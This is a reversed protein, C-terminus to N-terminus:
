GHTGKQTEDVLAGLRARLRSDRIAFERIPWRLDGKNTMAVFWLPRQALKYDDGLVVRGVVSFEQDPTVTVTYGEIAAANFHEGGLVRGGPFWKVAAVVGTMTGGGRPGAGM